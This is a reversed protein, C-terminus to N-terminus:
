TVARGKPRAPRRSPSPLVGVPRVGVHLRDLLSRDPSRISAPRTPARVAGQPSALHALPLAESRPSTLYRARDRRCPRVVGEASATSAQAPPGTSGQRQEGRWFPAARSPWPPRRAEAPCLLPRTLARRQLSAVTRVEYVRNVNQGGRPLAPSPAGAKSRRGQLAPRRGGWSRRGGAPLGSPPPLRPAGAMSRRGGGAGPAGAKSRRGGAPM